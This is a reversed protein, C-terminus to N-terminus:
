RLAKVAEVFSYGNLGMLIDVANFKKDCVPCIIRNTKSGYFMSPTKDEHIWCTAKGRTWEVLGEVPYQRAAMVDGDSILNPNGHQNKIERKGEKLLQNMEVQMQDAWYEKIEHLPESRLEEIKQQLFRARIRAAAMKNKGMRRAMNFTNIPRYFDVHRLERDIKEM